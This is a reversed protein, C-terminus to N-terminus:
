DSPIRSEVEDLSLDNRDEVHQRDAGILAYGSDSHRLELGAERARRRLDNSRLKEVMADNAGSFDEEGSTGGPPIAVVRRARPVGDDERRVPTM